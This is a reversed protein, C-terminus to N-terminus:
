RFSLPQVSKKCVVMRGPFAFLGSAAFVLIRTLCLIFDTAKLVTWLKKKLKQSKYFVDPAMEEYNSSIFNVQFLSLSYSYYKTTIHRQSEFLLLKPAPEPTQINRIKLTQPAVLPYNSTCSSVGKRIYIDFLVPVRVNQYYLSPLSFGHFYGNMSVHIIVGM